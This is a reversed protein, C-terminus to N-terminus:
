VMAHPLGLPVKQRAEQKPALVITFFDYRFDQAFFHQRPILKTYLYFAVSATAPGVWFVWHREWLIGGRVIAPGLCKAPNMGVGAYGLNQTLATSIFVLTGIVIGIGAFVIIQGRAQVQRHDFVMWVSTFLFVFTAFIELCLAPTTEISLNTPGNPGQEIYRLYCGALLFRGQIKSDIVAKLALAGLVGGICQAIIYIVARSISILGLLAATLSITPNLHGGSIPATALILVTVYFTILCAEVLNPTNTDIEYSTIYISDLAFVLIASGLLEAISARWTELSYFEEVGLRESLTTLKPVKGDNGRKLDELRAPNMGAGGYGKRMTVTTSVFVLLGVVIGIISFLVVPGRAQAQRHDFATWVSAFLFVFTCIIELWLAPSTDIGTTIPGNPGPAIVALTCGGLSFASEIKSSIVAKLALAGIVGGVCQALIYIIARSVSILGILAASFSIVPNIHGGSVPFTALLLVTFIITALFAIILNAIKTETEYTSIVVTDLAFVLTATGLLEAISARWAQLSFFEELGLRVGLSSPNPKKGHDGSKHDELRPTSSFPLVKHYLNEEDNAAMKPHLGRAKKLEIYIYAHPPKM